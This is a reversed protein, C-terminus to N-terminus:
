RRAKVLAAHLQELLADGGPEGMLKFLAAECAAVLDDHANVAQVIYAANARQEDRLGQAGPGNSSFGGTNAIQARYNMCALVGFIGTDSELHVNQGLKWPTPTHKNM